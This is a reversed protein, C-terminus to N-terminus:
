AAVEEVPAEVWANFQGLFEVQNMSLSFPMYDGVVRHPAMTHFRNGNEVKHYPTGKLFARVLHIARSERSLRVRRQWDYHQAELSNANKQQSAAYIRAANALRKMIRQQQVVALGAFKLAHREIMALSDM